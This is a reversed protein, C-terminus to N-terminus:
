CAGHDSPFFSFCFTNETRLHKGVRTESKLAQSWPLRTPPPHPGAHTLRRWTLPLTGGLFGQQKPQGDQTHLNTCTHVYVLVHSSHSSLLRSLDRWNTPQPSVWHAPPRAVLVTHLEEERQLRLEMTHRRAWGM